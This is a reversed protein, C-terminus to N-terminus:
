NLKPLRREIKAREHEYQEPLKLNSGLEEVTEDVLFGPGDTAFEFIIGGPEKMYM